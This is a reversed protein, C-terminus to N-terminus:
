DETYNYIGHIKELDTTSPNEIVWTGDQKVINFEITYDVRKSVKKMQALKYDLFLNHDFKKENDLFESQHTELYSDAEKQVGYLDYVTIKAIVKAEDGNYKEDVIVYKLDTYQKKMIEKYVKAQEDTLNESAILNDLEKLVEGDHNNFKDLYHRVAEAAQDKTCGTIFLIFTLLVILFKKM